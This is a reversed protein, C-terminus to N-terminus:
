DSQTNSEMEALAAAVLARRIWEAKNSKLQIYDYIKQPLRAGAIRESLPEEGPELETIWHGQENQYKKAM